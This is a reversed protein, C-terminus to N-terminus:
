ADLIDAAAERVGPSADDREVQRLVRDVAGSRHYSLGYVAGERVLPSEHELLRTLVLVVAQGETGETERGLAEAAYSLHARGLRGFLIWSALRAADEKALHDFADRCPEPFGSRSGVHELIRDITVMWATPKPPAEVTPQAEADRRPKQRVGTDDLTTYDCVTDLAASM